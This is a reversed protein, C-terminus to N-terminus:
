RCTSTMFAPHYMKTLTNKQLILYTSRFTLKKISRKPFRSVAYNTLHSDTSQRMRLVHQKVGSNLARNLELNKLTLASLANVVEQRPGQCIVCPSLITAHGGPMDHRSLYYVTMDFCIRSGRTHVDFQSYLTNFYNWCLTELRCVNWVRCFQISLFIIQMSFLRHSPRRRSGSPRAHLHVVSLRCPSPLWPHCRQTHVCM